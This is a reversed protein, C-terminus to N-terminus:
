RTPSLIIEVRRNALQGDKTDNSAIPYAEGVGAASIREAPVGVSALYSLASTARALSLETNNAYRSGSGTPINDTHGVVKVQADDQSILAQGIESLLVKGNESLITSGPTFLGTNGVKIAVSNNSLATVTTGGQSGFSKTLEASLNDSWETSNLQQKAMAIEKQKDKVQGSLFNRGAMARELAVTLRENEAQLTATQEASDAKLQKLENLNKLYQASLFKRGKKTKQLSAELAENTKQLDSADAKAQMLKRRNKQYNEALFSRGKKARDLAQGLEANESKMAASAASLEESKISMEDVLYDRNDTMFRLSKLLDKNEMQLDSNSAKQAKSEALVEELRTVLFQRGTETNTLKQQTSALEAKLAEVNEEGGSAIGTAIVPTSLQPEGTTGSFVPSGIALLLLTAGSTAILKGM